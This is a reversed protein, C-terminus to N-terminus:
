CILICDDEETVMINRERCYGAQIEVKRDEDYEKLEEILEKVTM